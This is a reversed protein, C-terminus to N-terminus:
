ALLSSDWVEIARFVRDQDAEIMRREREPPTDWRSIGCTISIFRRLLAGGIERHLTAEDLAMGRHRLEEVYAALPSEWDPSMLFMLECLDIAAPGRSVRAWDLLIPGREDFLVNDLHLDAHLLTHPAGALLEEVRANVSEVEDLM